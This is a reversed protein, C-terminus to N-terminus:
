LKYRERLAEVATTVKEQVYGPPPPSAPKAIGDPYAKECLESLGDTVKKKAGAGLSPTLPRAVTQARAFRGYSALFDPGYLDPVPPLLRSAVAAAVGPDTAASRADLEVVVGDLLQGSLPSLLDRVDDFSRGARIRQEIRDFASVTEADLRPDKPRVRASLPRYSTRARDIWELAEPGRRVGWLDGVLLLQWRVTEVRTLEDIAQAGERESPTGPPPPRSDTGGCGAALAAALAALAALVAVRHTM